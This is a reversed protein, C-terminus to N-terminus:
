YLSKLSGLENLTKIYKSKIIGLENLTKIYRDKYNDSEIQIDHDPKELLTDLELPWRGMFEAQEKFEKLGALYSNMILANPNAPVPVISFELLEWEKFTWGRQGEVIVDESWTIPIFGISGANMFGTSVKKFVLEAFPDDLDFLIDAELSERSQSITNIDVKGIPPRTYTDHGFLVVPNKIFNELRGGIPMVVDSDRDLTLSTLTFRVRGEEADIVHKVTPNFKFVPTNKKIKTRM